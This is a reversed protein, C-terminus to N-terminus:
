SGAGGLGGLRGASGTEKAARSKRASGSAKKAAKPKKPAYRKRAAKECAVRRKRSRDRRCVKLAAVLLQARTLIQKAVQKVLFNGIGNFTVSPPTTFTPPPIPSVQCGTGTCAQSSIPFGGDVRADFVDDKGDATGAEGLRGRHTFFVNNGDADADLFYSPTTNNAASLLFVCGGDQRSPTQTNCTGEGEREWEYVDQVGNQDQSVLGGAADFFVRNGDESIWREMFAPNLSPSVNAPVPAGGEPTCSVCLLGGGAGAGYVYVEQQGENDYGTLRAQSEFVVDRGDPTVESTRYGIDARWNGLAETGRILLVKDNDGPVAIFTNTVVHTGPAEHRVYLGSDSHALYYVYSGPEEGGEATENVGVVGDVEESAGVLQTRLPQHDVAPETNYRWLAGGEVYYVYRGEPTATWYRAAGLSVPITCAKAPETCTEGVLTSQMLAPNVRMFVHGSTLDTWFVRSGDGSLVDSFDGPRSEESSAGAVADADPEGDPLVSVLRPTGGVSVYVNNGEPGLVSEVAGETLAAPTQFLLVSGAAVGGAGGNAGVFLLSQARYNLTARVEGCGGTAPQGFLAHFGGATHTYLASCHPPGVPSTSAAFVPARQTDLAGLSLDSSFWEYATLGPEESPAATEPTVDSAHWGDPERTALFENGEREGIRGSGEGDGPGGAYALGDGDAAARLPFDTATLEAPPLEEGSIPAFVEGPDGASVLEYVRADPLSVATSGAAIPTTFTMDAGAAPGDASDAVFRFHYLVGARLGGIREQVEVAEAPAGLEVEPTSAGYAESAGYEVRYGTTKAGADIKAAVVAEGSGVSVVSEAGEVFPFLTLTVGDNDALGNATGVALRFYYPVGPAVGSLVASVSVPEVGANIEAPTQVCAVSQGYALSTGYEFRCEEVAVGEPSVTGSLAVSVTSVEVAPGIGVTPLAVLDFSEVDDAASESVYAVSGGGVGLGRSAVGPLSQALVGDPEYVGVSEGSNEDVLVNGTAPDVAVATSSVVAFPAAVWGTGPESWVEVEGGGVEGRAIVLGGGPEAAIGHAHEYGDEFGGLYVGTASFEDVGGHEFELVWVDGNADVTVGGIGAFPVLSSGPCPPAEGELECRGPLQGAYKWVGPSEEHFRDVVGHGADVVYVDGHSVSLADNDVAVGEPSAFAGAPSEAGSFESLYGGASDFVEVRSGGGDVVFVDGAAAESLSDNVAVGVPGEFEGVGVGMSGFSLGPLYESVAFAQASFVLAGLIGTALTVPMRRRLYTLCAFMLRFVSTRLCGGDCAANRVAGEV